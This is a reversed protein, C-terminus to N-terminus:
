HEVNWRRKNRRLIDVLSFEGRLDGVFRCSRRSRIPQSCHCRFVIRVAGEATAEEQLFPELTQTQQRECTLSFLVAWVVTNLHGLNSTSNKIIRNRSLYLGSPWQIRSATLTKDTFAATKRYQEMSFSPDQCPKLRQTMNYKRRYGFPGSQENLRM